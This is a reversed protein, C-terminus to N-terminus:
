KNEGWDNNHNYSWGNKWKNVYTIKKNRNKKKTEKKLKTEKKIAKNREKRRNM